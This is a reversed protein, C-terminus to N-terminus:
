KLVGILQCLLEIDLCRVFWIFGQLRVEKEADGTKEDSEGEAAAGEEKKVKKAKKTDEPPEEGEVYWRYSGAKGIGGLQSVCVAPVENGDHVYM